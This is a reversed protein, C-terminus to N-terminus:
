KACIIEMRSIAANQIRQSNLKDLKCGLRTLTYKTPRGQAECVVNKVLDFDASEKAIELLQEAETPSIRLCLNVIGVIMLIPFLLAGFPFFLFITGGPGTLDNIKSLVLDEAANKTENM